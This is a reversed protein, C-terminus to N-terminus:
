RVECSPAPRPPPAPFVALGRCARAQFTIAPVPDLLNKAGTARTLAPKPVSVPLSTIPPVAATRLTRPTDSMRRPPRHPGRGGPGLKCARGLGTCRAQGVGLPVDRLREQGTRRAASSRSSPRPAGQQRRPRRRASRSRRAVEAVRSGAGREWVSDQDSTRPSPVPSECVEASVECGGRRLRQPSPLVSAILMM